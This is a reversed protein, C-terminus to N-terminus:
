SGCTARCAVSERASRGGEGAAGCTSSAVARAGGKIRAASRNRRREKGGASAKRNRGATKEGKKQENRKRKRIRKREKGARKRAEGWYAIKDGVNVKGREEVFKLSRGRRAIGM